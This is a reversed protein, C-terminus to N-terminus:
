GSLNSLIKKIEDELTLIKDEVTNWVVQIDVGFYDHILKDRMGAMSRWPIEPYTERIENPIKKTAEGIIELARIVAYQTKKDERFADYEINHIFEKISLISDLIDNFYDILILDNRM